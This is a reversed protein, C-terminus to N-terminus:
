IVFLNSLALPRRRWLGSQACASLARLGTALHVSDLIQHWINTIHFGSNLIWLFGFFIVQVQVRETCALSSGLACQQNTTWFGFNLALYQLDM